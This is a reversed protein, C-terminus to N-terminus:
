TKRSVIEDIPEQCAIKKVSFDSSDGVAAAICLWAKASRSLCASVTNERVCLWHHTQGTNMFM